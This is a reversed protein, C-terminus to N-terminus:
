CIQRTEVRRCPKLRASTSFHERGFRCAGRGDGWFHLVSYDWSNSVENGLDLLFAEHALSQPPGHNQRRPRVGRNRSRTTRCTINTTRSGSSADCTVSASTGLFRVRGCTMLTRPGGTSESPPHRPPLEVVPRRLHFASAGPAVVLRVRTGDDTIRPGVGGGTARPGTRVWMSMVDGGVM